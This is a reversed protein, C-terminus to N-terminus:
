SNRRERGFGRWKKKREKREGKKNKNKKDSTNPQLNLKHV